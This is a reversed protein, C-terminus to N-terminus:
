QEIEKLESIAKTILDRLETDTLTELSSRQEQARQMDMVQSLTKVYIQLQQSGKHTLGNIQAEESLRRIEADILSFYNFLTGQMDPLATVESISLPQTVATPQIIEAKSPLAEIDYYRPM